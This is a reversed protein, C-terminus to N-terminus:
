RNRNKLFRNFDDRSSSFSFGNNIKYTNDKDVLKSYAMKAVKIRSSEFSMAKMVQILQNSNIHNNSMAQEFLNLRNSEFGADDISQLLKNFRASSMGTEYHEWDDIKYKRKYRKRGEDGNEYNYYSDRKPNFQIDGEWNQQDYYRSRYWSNPENWPGNDGLCCDTIIDLKEYDDVTVYYIKGPKTRVRGAYILRAKRNGNRNRNVVYIRLTHNRPPLDKFTLMKGVKEYRRGNIEVSINRGEMDRIKLLSRERQAYSNTTMLLAFLVLIIRQM